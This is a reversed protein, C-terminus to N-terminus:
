DHSWPDAATKHAGSVPKARQFRYVVDDVNFTAGDCGTVGQRLKFAWILGAADYIWSEALRGDFKGFDPLFAQTTRPGQRM